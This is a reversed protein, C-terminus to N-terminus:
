SRKSESKKLMSFSVCHRPQSIGDLRKGNFFIVPTGRVGLRRGLAIDREVLPADIHKNIGDTIAGAPLGAKIGYEELRGADLLDPTKSTSDVLKWFTDNGGKARATAAAEAAMMAGVRGPLPYHKYVVRLSDGYVRELQPVTRLFKATNPCTLDGFVVLTLAAERDGRVAADKQVPLLASEDAPYTAPHTAARPLLSGSPGMLPNPATSTTSPDPITTDSPSPTAVTGTPVPSSTSTSTATPTPTLGLSPKASVVWIAAAIGGLMLVSGMGILARFMWPSELKSLADRTSPPPAEIPENKNKASEQRSVQSAPAPAVPPVRASAPPPTPTAWSPTAVPPRAVGSSRPPPAIDDSLDMTELLRLLDRMDLPRLAPNSSLMRVFREEVRTTVEIGLSKPTPAPPRAAGEALLHIDSRGVMLECAILALAYADTWPGPAPPFPGDLEPPRYGIPIADRCGRSGSSAEAVASLGFLDLLVDDNRICIASTSVVGHAVGQEHLSSLASAIPQLWRAVEQVPKKSRAIEDRLSSAPEGRRVVGLCVRGSTLTVPRAHLVPILGRVGVSHRGIRAVAAELAMASTDVAVKTALAVTYPGNDVTSTSSFFTLADDERVLRELRYEGMVIQGVLGSTEASTDDAM